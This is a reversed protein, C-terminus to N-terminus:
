DAETKTIGEITWIIQKSNVRINTFLIIKFDIRTVKKEMAKECVKENRSMYVNERFPEM